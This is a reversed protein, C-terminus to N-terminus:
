KNPILIHLKQGYAYKKDEILQNKLDSLSIFRKEDRIKKVFYIRLEKGYIDQNFDLIYTEINLNDGGVTPNMGVNTIGKFLTGEYEVITYYVGKEPLVLNEEFHLNATPFGITRGLQRGKVVKGSINYPQLLMKNAEELYGEMILNRIRTSSIVEDNYTVPNMVHLKFNLEKSFKDLLTIDGENKFGFRYNFGVVIGEINYYKKMNLIFQEPSIRMLEEDFSMFNLVEIGRQSLLKEKMDNDMLLKPMDKMSIVSLPHNKFTLVMSRCNERRAEEITKNILAIHGVHLGDFSGLAVVTKYDLRTRFNDEFTIM